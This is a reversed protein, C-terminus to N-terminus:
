LVKYINIRWIFRVLIKQNFSLYVQYEIFWTFKHRCMRIKVFTFGFQGMTIAFHLKFRVQFVIFLVEVNSDGM